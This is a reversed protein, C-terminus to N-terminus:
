VPGLQELNRMLPTELTCLNSKVKTESNDVLCDCKFYATFFFFTRQSKKTKIGNLVYNLLHQGSIFKSMSMFIPLIVFLLQVQLNLICNSIEFVQCMFGSLLLANGLLVIFPFDSSYSM